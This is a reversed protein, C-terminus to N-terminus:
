GHHLTCTKSARRIGVRSHFRLWRHSMWDAFRHGRARGINIKMLGGWTMFRIGKTPGRYTHGM